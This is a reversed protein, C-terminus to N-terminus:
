KWYRKRESESNNGNRYVDLLLEEKSDVFEIITICYKEAM